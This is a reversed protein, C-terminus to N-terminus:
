SVARSKAASPPIAAVGDTSATPGARGQPCEILEDGRCALTLDVEGRGARAAEAM